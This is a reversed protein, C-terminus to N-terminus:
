DDAPKLTTLEAFQRLLEVVSHFGRMFGFFNVQPNLYPDVYIKGSENCKRHPIYPNKWRACSQSAKSSEEQIRCVIYQM